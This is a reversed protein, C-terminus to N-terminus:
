AVTSSCHSWAGLSFTSPWLNGSSGILLGTATTPNKFHLSASACLDCLRGCGWGFPIDVFSVFLCSFIGAAMRQEELHATRLISARLYYVMQRRPRRSGVVGLIM